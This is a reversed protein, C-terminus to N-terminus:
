LRILIKEGMMFSVQVLNGLQCADMAVVDCWVRDKYKSGISFSVLCCKAITVQTRKSLWYLTYTKPHKKTALKLKKVAEKSVANECSGLDIM